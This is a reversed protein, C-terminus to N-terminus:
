LDCMYYPQLVFEGVDLDGMDLIEGPLIGKSLIVVNLMGIAHDRRGAGEGQISFCDRQVM